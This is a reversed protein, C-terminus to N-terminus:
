EAVSLFQAQIKAVLALATLGPFGRAGKNPSLIVRWSIACLMPFM